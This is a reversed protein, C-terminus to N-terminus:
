CIVRELQGDAKFYITEDVIGGGGERGRERHYIFEAFAFAGNGLTTKVTM